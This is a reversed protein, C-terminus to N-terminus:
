IADCRMVDASEGGLLFLYTDQRWLGGQTYHLDSGMLLRWVRLM